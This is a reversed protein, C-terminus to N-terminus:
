GLFEQEAKRSTVLGTSNEVCPFSCGGEWQRLTQSLTMGTKSFVKTICLFPSECMILWSQCQHKDEHKESFHPFSSQQAVHLLATTKNQPSAAATEHQRINKGLTLVPQTAKSLAPSGLYRHSQNLFATLCM